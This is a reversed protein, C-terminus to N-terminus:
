PQVDCTQEGRERLSRGSGDLVCRNEPAWLAGPLECFGQFRHEAVAAGAMRAVPAHEECATLAVVGHRASETLVHVIAATECQASGPVRSWGCLTGYRRDESTPAGVRPVDGWNM